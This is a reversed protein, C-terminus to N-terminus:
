PERQLRFTEATDIVPSEAGSEDKLAVGTLGRTRAQTMLWALRRAALAPSLGEPRVNSICNREADVRGRRPDWTLYIGLSDPSSLGPREGILVVALRAGLAEGIPDGIAVRAQRVIAVPAWRWEAPLVGRLEAILAPAHREVALASLGDAVILALEPADDVRSEDSLGRLLDTSRADLQRGLDPRQLYEARDSAASHLDLTTLGQSQLAAALGEHDLARHVADRAQAHALQFALQSSTPQSIGARGLGIRAPTHRRLLRWPNDILPATMTHDHTTM